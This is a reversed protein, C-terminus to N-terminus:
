DYDTLDGAQDRICVVRDDGATDWSVEAANWDGARYREVAMKAAEEASTAQVSDTAYAQVTCGITVEFLPM